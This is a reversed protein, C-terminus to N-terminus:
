FCDFIWFIYDMSLLRRCVKMGVLMSYEVGVGVMGVVKGEGMGEEMGVVEVVMGEEKCLGYYVVNECGIMFVLEEVVRDVVMCVM